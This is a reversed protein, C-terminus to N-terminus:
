LTEKLVYDQDPREICIKYLYSEKGNLSDKIKRSLYVLERFYFVNKKDYLSFILVHFFLCNVKKAGKLHKM